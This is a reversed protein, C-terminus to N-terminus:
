QREYVAIIMSSTIGPEHGPRAPGRHGDKVREPTLLLLTAGIEIVPIALRAGKLEFSGGTVSGDAYIQYEAGSLTKVIKDPLKHAYALCDIDHYWEDAYIGPVRDTDFPRDCHMCMVISM